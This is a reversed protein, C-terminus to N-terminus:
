EGLEVTFRASIARMKAAIQPQQDNYVETVFDNAKTGPHWVSYFFATKGIKDWFFALTKANKATIAHAKTGKRIWTTLPEPMYVAGWIKGDRDYTKFTFAQAYKGSRNPAALSLENVMERLSGRVLERYNARLSSTAKVFRGQTDRFPPRVTVKVGSNTM